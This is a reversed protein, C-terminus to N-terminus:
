FIRDWLGGQNRCLGDPDWFESGVGLRTIFLADVDWKQKIALLREYNTGWYVNRFDPDNPDGMNFYSVKYNPDLSYLIPMQVSTLEHSAHLKSEVSRRVAKYLNILLASHRWGPHMSANVSNHNTNVAGGLTNIFIEDGSHLHVLSLTKAIQYPGRPSKFLHDSVLVSGQTIGYEAPYIDPDHRLSSSMRAHYESSYNYPIERTRFYDLIAGLRRDVNDLDTTNLFHLTLMATLPDARLHVEGAVGQENFSRLTELLLALAQTWSRDDLGEPASVALRATVCSVDPFIRVTAQTVLAFTGGGGGRLAWFLDQNRYDNAVVL